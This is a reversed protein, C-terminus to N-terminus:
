DAALQPSTSLQLVTDAGERICSLLRRAIALGECDMEINYDYAEIINFIELMDYGYDPSFEWHEIPGMPQKGYRNKACSINDQRMTEILGKVNEGPRLSLRATAAWTCLKNYEEDRLIRISM